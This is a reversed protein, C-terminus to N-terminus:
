RLHPGIVKAWISYGKSNMHLNDEVFLDKRLEGQDDLMPTWVDIVEVRRKNAAWTKLQAIYKEYEKKRDWRLISPKPTIFFIEVKESLECRIVKVIKDAYKLIEDPTKEQGLDNDGEYIFIKEPKYQLILEETYFFLDTMQSGGFATNLINVHRFRQPLDTWLRISSSGTFVVARNRDTSDYRELINLVDQQFRLPDQAVVVKEPVVIATM